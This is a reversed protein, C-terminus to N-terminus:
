PLWCMQLSMQSIASQGASTKCAELRGKLFSKKRNWSENLELKMVSSLRTLRICRRRAIADTFSTKPSRLDKSGVAPISGASPLAIAM